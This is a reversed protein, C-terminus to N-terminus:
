LADMNNRRAYSVIVRVGRLEILAGPWVESFGHTFFGKNRSDGALVTGIEGFKEKGFAVLHMADDATGAREIRLPDIMKVHIGVDM